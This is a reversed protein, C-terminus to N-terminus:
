VDQTSHEQDVQDRLVKHDRQEQIVRIERRVRTVKREMLVM